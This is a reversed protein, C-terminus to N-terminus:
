MGPLRCAVAWAFRWHGADAPWLQGRFDCGGRIEWARSPCFPELFARKQNAPCRDLPKLQVVSAPARRSHYDSQFGCPTSLNYICLGLWLHTFWVCVWCKWDNQHEAWIGYPVGRTRVSSRRSSKAVIIASKQTQSPTKPFLNIRFSENLCFLVGSRLEASPFHATPASMRQCVTPIILFFVFAYVFLGFRAIVGVFRVKLDLTDREGFVVPIIIWQFANNEWTGGEIKEFYPKTM